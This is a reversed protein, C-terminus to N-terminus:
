WKAIRKFFSSIWDLVIHMIDACIIGLVVYLAEEGSLVDKLLAQIDLSALSSAVERNWFSLIGILAFYLFILIFVLYLIRTFTGLVPVHSLGRHSFLAQYPFWFCRLIKWRKSSRSHPLDIDPSLLFTGAVYGGAFYLTYESPVFYLMPVLAVLNVIEHTKGSAM